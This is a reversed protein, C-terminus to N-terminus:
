QTGGFDSIGPEERCSGDESVLGSRGAAPAASVSGSSHSRGTAAPGARRKAIGGADSLCTLSSWHSLPRDQARRDSSGHAARLNGYPRLSAESRADGEACRLFTKPIDTTRGVRSDAEPQPTSNSSCAVSTTLTRRPSGIAPTPCWTDPSTSPSRRVCRRTIPPSPRPAGAPPSSRSPSSATPQSTLATSTPM